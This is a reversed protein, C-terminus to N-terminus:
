GDQDAPVVGARKAMELISPLEDEDILEHTAFSRFVGTSAMAMSLATQTASDPTSVIALLDREGFSWYLSDVSGGLTEAARRLGVGRAQPHEMMRSWQEPEYSALVAYKPM